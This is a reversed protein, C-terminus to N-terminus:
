MIQDADITKAAFFIKKDRLMTLIIYIKNSESIHLSKQKRTNGFNM